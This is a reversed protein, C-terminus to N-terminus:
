VWIPRRRKLCREADIQSQLEIKEEETREGEIRAIKREMQQIQFNLNYLFEMKTQTERDFEQIKPALNKARTQSGQIEAFLNKEAKRATYVDQSLKFIQGNENDIATELAKLQVEEKKLFDNM